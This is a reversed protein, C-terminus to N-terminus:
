VVSKRDSTEPIRSVINNFNTLFFNPELRETNAFFTAEDGLAKPVQMQQIHEQTNAAMVSLNKKFFSKFSGGETQLLAATEPIDNLSAFIDQVIDADNFAIIKGVEHILM